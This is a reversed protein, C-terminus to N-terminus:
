RAVTTLLKRRGLPSMGILRLDVTSRGSEYSFERLVLAVGWVENGGQEMRVSVKQDLLADVADVPVSVRLEWSTMGPMSGYHPGPIMRPEIEEDCILCHWHTINAGECDEDHDEHDCPVPEIRTRLTPWREERSWYAHFHGSADVFSWREDPKPSSSSIDIREVEIKLQGPWGPGENIHVGDGTTVMTSM